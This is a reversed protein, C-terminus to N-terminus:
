RTRVAAIEPRHAAQNIEVILERLSKLIDDWSDVGTFLNFLNIQETAGRAFLYVMLKESESASGLFDEYWRLRANNVDWSVAGRAGITAGTKLLKEKDSVTKTFTKYVTVLGQDQLAKIAQFPIKFKGGKDGSLGAKWVSNVIINCAGFVIIVKSFDNSHQFMAQTMGKIMSQKITEVYGEAQTQVMGMVEAIKHEDRVLDSNNSLISAAGSKLMKRDLVFSSVESDQTGRLATLTNAKVNVVGSDWVSPELIDKTGSAEFAYLFPNGARRAKISVNLFYSIIILALHTADPFDIQSYRPTKGAQQGLLTYYKTLEPGFSDVIGAQVVESLAAIALQLAESTKNIYETVTASPKSLVKALENGSKIDRDARLKFKFDDIVKNQSVQDQTLPNMMRDFSNHWNTRFQVEKPDTSTSELRDLLEKQKKDARDRLAAVILTGPTAKSMDLGAINSPLAGVVNSPINSVGLKMAGQMNTGAKITSNYGPQGSQLNFMDASAMQAQAMTAGAALGGSVGKLCFGALIPGAYPIMSLTIALTGDIVKAWVDSQPTDPLAKQAAAVGNSIKIPDIRKIIDLTGSTGASGSGQYSRGIKGTVATVAREIPMIGAKLFPDTTAMMLNLAVATKITADKEMKSTLPGLSQMLKVSPQMARRIVVKKSNQDAIEAILEDLAKLSMAM